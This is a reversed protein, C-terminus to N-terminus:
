HPYYQTSILPLPAAKLPEIKFFDMVLKVLSFFFLLLVIRFYGRINNWSKQCFGKSYKNINFDFNPNMKKLDLKAIVGQECTIILLESASGCCFCFCCGILQIDLDGAVHKQEMASRVEGDKSKRACELEFIYNTKDM